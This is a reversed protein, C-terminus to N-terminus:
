DTLLHSSITFRVQWIKAHRDGSQDRESSIVSGTLLINPSLPTKPYLALNHSNRMKAVADPIAGGLPIFQQFVAVMADVAEQYSSEERQVNFTIWKVKQKSETDIMTSLANIKVMRGDPMSIRLTHPSFMGQMTSHETKENSFCASDELEHLVKLSCVPASDTVVPAKSLQSFLILAAVADISPM